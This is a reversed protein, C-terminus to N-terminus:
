DYHHHQHHHDHGKDAPGGLEALAKTLVTDTAAMNAAAQELLEALGKAGEAGAAAAWKRFEAGHNENHEIWHPLLIRLKELTSKHEM